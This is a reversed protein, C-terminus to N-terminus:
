TLDISSLGINNPDKWAWVICYHSFLQDLLEREDMFELREIRYICLFYVINFLPLKHTLRCCILIYFESLYSDHQM